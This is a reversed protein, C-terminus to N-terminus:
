KEKIACEILAKTLGPVDERTLAEQIDVWEVADIEVSDPKIQGGIVNASFVAYWDRNNFRIGILKAAEIDLGTEELYERKLADQPSEERNIYGGPVIWKGAGRGYIHRALLM